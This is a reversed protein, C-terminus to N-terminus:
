KKTTPRTRGSAFAVFGFHPRLHSFIPASMYFFQITTRRTFDTCLGGNEQVPWLQSHSQADNASAAAEDPPGIRLLLFRRRSCPSFPCPHPAHWFPTSSLQITVVRNSAARPFLFAILSYEQIVYPPSLLMRAAGQEGHRGTVRQPTHPPNVSHRRRPASLRRRIIATLGSGKNTKCGLRAAGAARLNGSSKARPSPVWFCSSEGAILGAVSCHSYCRDFRLASVVGVIKCM